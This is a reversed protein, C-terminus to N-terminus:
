PFRLLPLEGTLSHGGCHYLAKPVARDLAAEWRRSPDAAEAAPLLLDLLGTPFEYEVVRARDLDLRERLAALADEEFGIRDILGAEAAQGATFIQGTALARVKEGDLAKRNADIVEVFRDFADALIVRWVEEEKESLPRFPNLSDKLEGTQLSDSEVGVKEALGTLDYRPIIVGISGTWTTPEAFILGDPGAGMAVYLGGSAAMRKMSVVVPKKARLRELRHYIQHSDAVLGGPSDVVLLVGRVGNDEEARKLAALTRATFPPSITGIVEIRAIKAEADRDGDRFREAPPEAGAYYRDHRSWFVFNAVASVALLVALTWARRRWKRATRSPEAAPRAPPASM